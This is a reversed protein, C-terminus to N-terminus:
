QTPLTVKIRTGERLEDTGRWAILDGNQLAGYVVLEIESGNNTQASYNIAVNRTELENHDMMLSPKNASLNLPVTLLGSAEIHPM